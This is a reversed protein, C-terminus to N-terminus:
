GRPRPQYFNNMWNHPTFQDLSADYLTAVMEASLGKGTHDTLTLGWQEKEGPLLQDRFTTFAIDIKKDSHPVEIGVSEIYRRNNAVQVFRASVNGRYEEEIPILLRYANKGPKLTESKLLESGKVLEYRIPAKPHLATLWIEAMEGPQGSTKIGSVWEMANEAKSPTGTILRVTQSWKSKQKGDPSAAEIEMRYYGPKAGLWEGLQIEESLPLSFAKQVIVEGKKWNKTLNEDRYPYHPFKKRFNKEDMVVTDPTEWYRNVLLQESAEIKFLSLVINSPVEKGNLNTTKINIGKFNNTSVRDPLDCEILLNSDSIRIESRNTQTEGNRDTAEVQVEYVMVRKRDDLDSALAPFSISFRGDTGALTTNHAIVKEPLAPRWWWRFVEERRTIHYSVRAEDVPSGSFTKVTGSMLVTDGFSYSRDPQDFQVDFTPRRYEEVRFTASGHDCNLYYVGNLGTRPLSLSGSFTGYDNSVLQLSTVEEFNADKMSITTRFRPVVSFKGDEKELVIAKFQVTQGPRYIARDTYFTISREKKEVEFINNRSFYKNFVLLTDTKNIVKVLYNKSQESKLFAEGENNTLLNKDKKYERNRSQQNYESLHLEINAKPVPLGTTSNSVLLLEGKERMKSLLSSSSVQVPVVSHLKNKEKDSNHWGTLLYFGEPVGDVAIEAKHEFFDNLVPLAQEWERFVPYNKLSDAIPIIKRFFETAQRSNIKILQLKVSQLNKWKIMVRFPQKPLEIAEATLSFLPEEIKDILQQCFLTAKTGPYSKLVENCLQLTKRLRDDKGPLQRNFYHLALRYTVEAKSEPSPTQQLLLEYFRVTLSDKDPNKSNNFLYNIRNLELETLAEPNSDNLRFRVLQQFLTIAKYQLSLSDNTSIPLQAFQSAPAFFNPNDLEFADVPKTLGTEPNGIIRLARHALLDFLTPRLHRLTSDGELLPGYQAVRSNRLLEEGKLSLDLHQLTTTTLRALDWTRIDNGNPVEQATREHFRWRNAEYYSWYIEAILSHVMQRVPAELNPLDSNLRDLISVLPEEELYCINQNRGVISRIMMVNNKESYARQYISDLISLSERPLGENHLSDILKFQSQYWDALVFRPISFLFTLLLFLRSANKM